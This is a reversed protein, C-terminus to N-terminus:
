PVETEIFGLIGDITLYDNGGLNPIFMKDLIRPYFKTWFVSMFISLIDVLLDEDCIEPRPEAAGVKATRRKDTGKKATRDARRNGRKAFSFAPM